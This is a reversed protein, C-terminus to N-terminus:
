DKSLVSKVADVVNKNHRKDYDSDIDNWIKKLTNEVAEYPTDGFKERVLRNINELNFDGTKTISESILQHKYKWAKLNLTM